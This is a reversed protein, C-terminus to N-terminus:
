GDFTVPDTDGYWRFSSKVRNEGIVKSKSSNEKVRCSGDATMRRPAHGSRPVMAFDGAKLIIKGFEAPEQYFILDRQADYEMSSPEAPEYGLVERWLM